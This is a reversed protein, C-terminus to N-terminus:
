GIGAASLFREMREFSAQDIDLSVQGASDLWLKTTASLVERANALQEPERLAPVYEITAQLASEPDAVVRKEAALLGQLLAEVSANGAWSDLVILSPGVLVPQPSIPLASVEQGASRLQVLENNSFGVIADVHGTTLASVSTYGIEVLRVDEESLQATQLAVLAAFYSSGYRGPIGLSKGKLEGLNAASGRFIIQAPYTQYVSAISTLGGALVGEDASAFVVDEQGSRLADFLGEQEGHHRLTVDIDQFLKEQVGLYFACFQVNPIYTLGITLERYDGAPRQGACSALLAAGTSALVARRSFRM